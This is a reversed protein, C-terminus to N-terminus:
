TKRGRRPTHAGPAAAGDQRLGYARMFTDIGSGLVADRQAPTIAGGVGMFERLQLDGCILALFQSAALGPREHRLEGRAMAEALFGALQAQLRAPGAEYFVRGFEPFRPAEAAIMRFVATNAPMLLLEFADRGIRRLTAAAPEGDRAALSVMNLSCENAIVAAFLESKSKFHAYVTAKGVKAAAAVADMSTAGYGDRTFLAQAGALISAIKQESYPSPKRSRPVPGDKSM